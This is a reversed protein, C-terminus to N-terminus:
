YSVTDPDYGLVEARNELELASCQRIKDYMTELREETDCQLYLKSLILRLKREETITMKKNREIRVREGQQRISVKYCSSSVPIDM